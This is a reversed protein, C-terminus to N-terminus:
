SIRLRRAPATPRPHAPRPPRRPLDPATLGALPRFAVRRAPMLDAAATYFVTWAPPGTGTEALADQPTTFPPGPLPEFGAEACAGRILDRFAPNGPRPARRLPMGTLQALRIVQQAALPHAAPRAVTLRDQGAPRPQVGPASTV